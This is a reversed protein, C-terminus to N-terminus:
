SNGLRPTIAASDAHAHSNHALFSTQRAQPPPHPVTGAHRTTVDMSTQASSRRPQALTECSSVMSATPKMCNERDQYRPNSSHTGHLLITPKDPTRQGVRENTQTAPASGLLKQLKMEGRVVKGHCKWVVVRSVSWEAAREMMEMPSKDYRM